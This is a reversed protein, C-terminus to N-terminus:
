YRGFDNSESSLLSTIELKRCDDKIAALKKQIGGGSGIKEDQSVDLKFNYVNREFDRSSEYHKCLILLDKKM